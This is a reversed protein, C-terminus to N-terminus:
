QGKGAHYGEVCMCLADDGDDAYTRNDDALCADVDLSM